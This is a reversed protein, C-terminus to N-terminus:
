SSVESAVKRVVYNTDLTAKQLIYNYTPNDIEKLYYALRLISTKIYVNDSDMMKVLQNCILSQNELNRLLQFLIKVTNWRVDVNSSNSWIISQQLIISELKPCIEQSSAELYSLLLQSAKIQSLEDDGIDALIEILDTNVDKGLSSYLLLAYFKLNAENLNTM